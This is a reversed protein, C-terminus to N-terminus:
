REQSRASAKRAGLISPASPSAFYDFNRPRAAAVEFQQIL